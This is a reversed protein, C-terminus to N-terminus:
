AEVMEKLAFLKMLAAGATVAPLGPRNILSAAVRRAPAAAQSQKLQWAAMGAQVAVLAAKQQSRTDNRDQALTQWADAAYRLALKIEARALLWASLIDPALASAQVNSLGYLSRILSGDARRVIRLSVLQLRLADHQRAALEVSETATWVVVDGVPMGAVFGLGPLIGGGGVPRYHLTKSVAGLTTACGDIQIRTGAPCQALWSVDTASLARWLSQTGGEFLHVLPLGAGHEGLWQIQHRLAEGISPAHQSSAGCSSLWGEAFALQQMPTALPEARRNFVLSARLQGRSGQGTATTVHDHIALVHGAEARGAEQRAVRLMHDIYTKLTAPDPKAASHSRWLDYAESIAPDDDICGCAAQLDDMSLRTDGQGAMSLLGPLLRKRRSDAAAAETDDQLPKSLSMLAAFDAETPAYLAQRQHDQVLAQDVLDAAQARGLDEPVKQGNSVYHIPLQYRIATDLAAGLRSAEDVKTIICGQLPTGGDNAYCRAVEDLTDGHSSANLVLLRGVQRGAGALMAAQESIYRDRQSIGVNDILLTQDPRLGACIQRLEDADQVVHVPVRLMQGYIKLQEHAGIRYTDTTLLVLKDPGARRVCRAALKAITTTKGVGTPGVLALALGPRWFSEESDMVPLHTVLENRAWQLAARGSLPSPLRKLMARLLATSFGLGLLTQFLVAAQPAARLQNGWLLEDIRTELAGRMEGIASMVVTDQGPAPPPAYAGRPPAPQLVAPAPVGADVAASAAGQAMNAASTPDTALIEVGGNIRRNSVILAEPGLALRVQRMAERSTSGFFRSINV